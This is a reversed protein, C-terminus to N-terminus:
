QPPTKAEHSRRKGRRWWNQVRCQSRAATPDFRAYHQQITDRIVCLRRQRDIPMAEHTALKVTFTDDLKSMITKEDYGGDANLRRLEAEVTNYADNISAQVWRIYVVLINRLERPIFPDSETEIRWLNLLRIPPPTDTFHDYTPSMIQRLAKEKVKLLHEDCESDFEIFLKKLVDQVSDMTRRHYETNIPSLWGRKAARYTAWAAVATSGAAVATVLYFCVQAAELADHLKM